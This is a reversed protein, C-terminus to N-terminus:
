HSILTQSTLYAVVVLVRTTQVKNERGRAGLVASTATLIVAFILQASTDARSAFLGLLCGEGM